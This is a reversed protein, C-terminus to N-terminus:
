SPYTGSEGIADYSILGSVFYSTNCGGGRVCILRWVFALRRVMDGVGSMFSGLLSASSSFSFVTIFEDDDDDDDDGDDDGNDDDDATMTSLVITLSTALNVSPSDVM